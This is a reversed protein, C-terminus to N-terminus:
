FIGNQRMRGVAEAVSAESHTTIAPSSMFDEATFM